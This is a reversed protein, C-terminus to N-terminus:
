FGMRLNWGEITWSSMTNITKSGDVLLPEWRSSGTKAPVGSPHNGDTNEWVDTSNWADTGTFKWTYTEEEGTVPNTM